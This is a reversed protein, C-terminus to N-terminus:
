AKGDKGSVRINRKTYCTLLKRKRMLFYWDVIRITKESLDICDVELM